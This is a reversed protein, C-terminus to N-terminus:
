RTMVAEKILGFSCGCGPAGFLPLSFFLFASLSVFGVPDVPGCVVWGVGRAKMNRSPVMAFCRSMRELGALRRIGSRSFWGVLWGSVM